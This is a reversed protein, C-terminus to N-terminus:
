KKKSASFILYAEHLKGPTQPDQTRLRSFRTKWAFFFSDGLFALCKQSM